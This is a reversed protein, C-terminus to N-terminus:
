AHPKTTCPSGGPTLPVAGEVFSTVLAGLARQSAFATFTHDAGAVIALRFNERGRMKCAERGLHKEIMDLGGDNSSFVLLSELGRDSLACFAREIDTRPPPRGLGRALLARTWAGARTAYRERLVGAVGHVDVKGRLAQAWM